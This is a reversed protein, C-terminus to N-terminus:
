PQRSKRSKGCNGLTAIVSSELIHVEHTLENSLELIIRIISLRIIIISLSAFLDASFRECNLDYSSLILCSFQVVTLLSMLFSCLLAHCSDHCLDVVPLVVLSIIGFTFVLSFHLLILDTSM